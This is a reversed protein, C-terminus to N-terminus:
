GEEDERILYTYSGLAERYRSELERVERATMRGSRLAHDMALGLREFLKEKGYQVYRLVDEMTDGRVIESTRPQGDPDITVHVANTDGFLNHMDGLIEQYAGVLFIGIYYPENPLIPHLRVSRQTGRADIFRDLRGDSDCTLDALIAQQTPEENLRQIPM